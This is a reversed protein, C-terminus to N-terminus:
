RLYKDEWTRMSPEHLQVTIQQHQPSERPIRMLLGALVGFVMGSLHALNATGSPVFVGVIDLAVWVISAVWLPVIMGFAFVQLHPRLVLLCGIIGFLAGSAGLSAPYFFLSVFNALIGTVLFVGFFRKSGVLSECALGFFFLAFMNSLLHNLSGHLFIATVFRWVQPIAESTLLFTDTFGSVSIQIIFILICISM